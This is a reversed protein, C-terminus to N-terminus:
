APPNSDQISPLPAQSNWCLRTVTDLLAGTLPQVRLDIPALLGAVTQFAGPFVVNDGSLENHLHWRELYSIPSAKPEEDARHVVLMGFFDPWTAKLYTQTSEDFWVQHENGEEDPIRNLEDPQSPIIFGAEKAYDSFIGLEEAYYTSGGQLRAIAECRSRLEAVLAKLPIGAAPQSPEHISM